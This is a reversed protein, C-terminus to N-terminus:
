SFQIPVYMSIVLKLTFPNFTGVKRREEKIIKKRPNESNKGTLKKLQFWSMQNTETKRSQYYTHKLDICGWAGNYSCEM